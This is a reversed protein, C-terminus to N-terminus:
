AAVRRNTPKIEQTEEKVKISKAPVVSATDRKIELPNDNGLPALLEDYVKKEQMGAKAALFARLGTASVSCCASVFEEESADKGLRSLIPRIREFVGKPSVDIEEQGEYIIDESAIKTRLVTRTKGPDLEFGEVSKGGSMMKRAVDKMESDLKDYIKFQAAIANTRGLVRTMEEATMTDEKNKCIKQYEKAWGAESTLEELFQQANLQLKSCCAKGRCYLCHNGTQTHSDLGDKIADPLEGDLGISQRVLVALKEAKLAQQRMRESARELMEGTYFAADIEENKQLNTILAVYAKDIRSDNRRALVALTALQANQASQMHEGYLSKYDCLVLTVGGDGREIKAVVDGLGTLSASTGEEDKVDWQLRKCDLAVELNHVDGAEKVAFEILRDRKAIANVCFWFESENTEFQRTESAHKVKRYASWDRQDSGMDLTASSFPITALFDHIETGRDAMAGAELEAIEHRQLFAHM